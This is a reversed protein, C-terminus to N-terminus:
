RRSPTVAVTQIAEEVVLGHLETLIQLWSRSQFTFPKDRDEGIALIAVQSVIAV